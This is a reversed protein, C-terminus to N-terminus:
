IIINSNPIIKKRIFYICLYEMFFFLILIIIKIILEILSEFKNYSPICAKALITLMFILINLLIFLFYVFKISIYLISIIFKIFGYIILCSIIFVIFNTSNLNITNMNFISDILKKNYNINYKKELTYNKILKIEVKNQIAKNYKILKIIRNYEIYSFVLKINYNSKIKLIINNNM